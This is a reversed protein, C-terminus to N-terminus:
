SPTQRFSFRGIDGSRRPNENSEVDVMSSSPTAKERRLMQKASGASRRLLQKASGVSSQRRVVVQATEVSEATTSTGQPLVRRGGPVAGLRKAVLTISTPRFPGPYYALALAKYLGDAILDQPTTAFFHGFDCGGNEMDNEHLMVTPQNMRMMERVVDALLGGAEGVFTEHALYLLFHTAAPPPATSLELGVMSKQLVEAVERAGPNNPSAYMRVPQKFVLSTQTIEGPVFIDQILAKGQDEYEEKYGPCSSLLETAILKLSILQFDKIRHWEIIKRGDFISARLEDPCEEEQITKLPAGGRVPDFVVALPKAM